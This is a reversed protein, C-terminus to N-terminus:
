GGDAAPLGDRADRARWRTEDDGGQDGWEDGDRGKSGAEHRQKACDEGGAWLRQRADDGRQDEAGSEYVGAKLVIGHLLGVGSDRGGDNALLGLEDGGFGCNAASM